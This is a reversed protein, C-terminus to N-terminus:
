SDKFPKAKNLSLYSLFGVPIWIWFSFLRFVLTAMLAVSSSIGLGSYILVLSGDTVGIGGPIASLLGLATSICYGFILIGPPVTYGFAEFMFFLCIIDGLWFLVSALIAYASDRKKRSFLGIGRYIDNFIQDRKNEPIQKKKIKLLIKNAFNFIKNWVAWFRDKHKYLLFLYTVAFLILVFIGLSIIKPSFSASQSAPALILGLVFLALFGAYTFLTRLIWILVISGSDVNQKRFLRYDVAAAGIGSIPLFQMTFAAISSFKYRTLFPIKHGLRSLIIGLLWAASAYSLIKASIALLLYYKNVNALLKLAQELGVLKPLLFYLGILILILIIINKLSFKLPSADKDEENNM